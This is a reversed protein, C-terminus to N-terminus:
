RKIFVFKPDNIINLPLVDTASSRSLDPRKGMFVAAQRGVASDVTREFCVSYNATM